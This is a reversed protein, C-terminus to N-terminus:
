EGVTLVQFTTFRQNVKGLQAGVAIVTNGSLSAELEIWIHRLINDLIQM